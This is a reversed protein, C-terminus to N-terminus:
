KHEWESYTDNRLFTRMEKSVARMHEYGGILFAMQLFVEIGYDKLYFALTRTDPDDSTQTDNADLWANITTMIVPLLYDVHRRFFPNGNITFLATIFATNIESDTVPKDKDILDDWTEIIRSLQIVFQMAAVDGLLWRNFNDDRTKRWEDSDYTM